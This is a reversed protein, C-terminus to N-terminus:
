ALVRVPAEPLEDAGVAAARLQEELPARTDLSCVSPTSSARRSSPATSSPSSGPTPTRSGRRATCARRQARSRSTSRRRAACSSCGAGARGLRGLLLRALGAHSLDRRRDRRAARELEAAADALLRYTARTAARTTSPAAATAPGPRRPAQAGRRLLRGAPALAPRARAALTSKGSAPPGCVVIAVPARARWCLREALGWLREAHERRRRRESGHVAGAAILAVKARVLARHAAHFSRLQESGPRGGARRYAGLLERAARRRGHAELDMALFALDRSVDMRRLAPDFEIRDVVRVPPGPLVHECRLDGHGDRVAGARARREIEQHPRSSRRPSCACRRWRGPPPTRPRPSRTSTRRWARLVQSPSAARPPSPAPPPVGCPADGRGAASPCRAGHARDGGGAHRTEDFRRM